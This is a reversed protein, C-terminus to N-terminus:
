KQKSEWQFVSERDSGAKKKKKYHTVIYELVNQLFLNNQAHLPPHAYM